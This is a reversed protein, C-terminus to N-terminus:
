SAAGTAKRRLWAGVDDLPLVAHCLGETAVAGPMGWVVSTKQDQAVLVGGSAVINRAGRMGDSGMGTLIAMLVKNAGYTEAVSRFMPDVAPRCFNEPPDQTLRIHPAGDKRVTLMHFDGPALYARGGVIREGDKAEACSLKTQRTIHDALLATFTRPMHQTILIPQQLGCLHPLVQFLAQPGGTSSGIAVVDPMTSLRPMPLLQIDRGEYLRGRSAM